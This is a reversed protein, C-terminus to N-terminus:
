NTSRQRDSFAWEIQEGKKNYSCTKDFLQAVVLLVLVLFLIPERGTDLGIILDSYGM